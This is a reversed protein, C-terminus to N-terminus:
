RLEFPQGDWREIVIPEGGVRGIQFTTGALANPVHYTGERSVPMWLDLKYESGPLM